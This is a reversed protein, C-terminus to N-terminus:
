ATVRRCAAEFNSWLVQLCHHHLYIGHSLLHHHLHLHGEATLVHALITVHPALVRHLCRSSPVVTPEISHEPMAPGCLNTSSALDWTQRQSRTLELDMWTLFDESSCDCPATVEGVVDGVVQRMEGPSGKGQRTEIWSVGGDV